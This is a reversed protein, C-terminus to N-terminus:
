QKCLTNKLYDKYVWNLNNMESEKVWRVESIEQADEISLSLNLGNEIHCHYVFTINQRISHKPNDIINKLRLYQTDIVLGTEEQLERCACEACTEDYDLYGGAFCYQNPHVDVKAGRKVVLYYTENCHTTSVVVCSAVSRSIWYEKGNHEIPFNKM